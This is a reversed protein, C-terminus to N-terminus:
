KKGTPIPSVNVSFANMLTSCTLFLMEYQCSSTQNEEKTEPYYYSTDPGVFTMLALFRKM